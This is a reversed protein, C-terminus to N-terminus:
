YVFVGLFNHCLIHFGRLPLLFLFHVLLDLLWDILHPVDELVVGNSNTSIKSTKANVSM